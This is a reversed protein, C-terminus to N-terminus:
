PLRLGGPPPQHSHTGLPAPPQQSHVHYPPPAACRPTVRRLFDRREPTGTNERVWYSLLWKEAGHALLLFLDRENSNRFYEGFASFNKQKGLPLLFPHEWLPERHSGTQGGAGAAQHTATSRPRSSCGMSLLPRHGRARGKVNTKRFTNRPEPWIANGSPIPSFSSKTESQIFRMSRGLGGKKKKGLFM